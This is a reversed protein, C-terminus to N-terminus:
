GGGNYYGLRWGVIRGNVCGYLVGEHVSLDWITGFPLVERHLIEGTAGELMLIEGSKLLITEVYPDDTYAGDHANEIVRRWLIRESDKADTSLDLGIFNGESDYAVITDTQLPTHLTKLRSKTFGLYFEELGEIEVERRMGQSPDFFFLKEKNQYILVGEMNRCAYHFGKPLPYTALHRGTTPDLEVLGKLPRSRVGIRGNRIQFTLTDGDRLIFFDLLEGQEYKNKIDNIECNHGVSYSGMGLVIDDVQFGLSDAQTDDFVEIIESGYLSHSYFRDGAKVPEYVTTDAWSAGHGTIDMGVTYEINRSGWRDPITSEEMGWLLFDSLLYGSKGPATSSPVWWLTTYGRPVEYGEAIYTDPLPQLPKLEGHTQLLLPTWSIRNSDDYRKFSYLIPGVPTRLHYAAFISKRSTSIDGDELSILHFDIKRNRYAYDQDSWGIWAAMKDGTVSMNFSMNYSDTLFPETALVLGYRELIDKWKRKGTAIFAQGALQKLERDLGIATFVPHLGDMVIESQIKGSSVAVKGMEAARERDGLQFSGIAAMGALDGKLYRDRNLQRVEFFQVEWGALLSYLTHDRNIRPLDIGWRNLDVSLLTGDTADLLFKSGDAGSIWLYRDGYNLLRGETAMSFYEKTWLIKNERLDYAVVENPVVHYFFLSDGAAEHAKRVKYSSQAIAAPLARRIEGGYQHFVQSGEHFIRMGDVGSNILYDGKFVLDSGIFPYVGRIETRSGTISMIYLSDGRVQAIWNDGGYLGPKEDDKVAMPFPLQITTVSLSPSGLNIKYLTDSRFAFYYPEHYIDSPSSQIPLDYLYEIEDSSNAVRHLRNGDVLLLGSGLPLLNLKTLTATRYWHTEREVDSIVSLRKYKGTTINLHSLYHEEGTTEMFYMLDDRKILFDIDDCEIKVDIPKTIKYDRFVVLRKEESEEKKLIAYVINDELTLQAWWNVPSHSKYKFKRILNGAEPDYIDIRFDAKNERDYSMMLLHNGLFQNDVIRRDGTYSWDKNLISNLESLANTSFKELSQWNGTNLTQLAEQHASRISNSEEAFAAGPLLLSSILLLCLAKLNTTRM